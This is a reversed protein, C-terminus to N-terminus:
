TKIVKPKDFDSRKIHVHGNTFWAFKHQNSKAFQQSNYLLRNQQATLQPSIHIKHIFNQSILRKKSRNFNKGAELFSTRKSKAKFKLVVTGKEDQTCEVEEPSIECGIQNSVELAINIPDITSLPVGRIEVNQNTLQQDLEETIDSTKQCSGKLTVVEQELEKVRQCIQKKFEEFQATLITLPDYFTPESRTKELSPDCIISSRRKSKLCSNCHFSLKKAKINEVIEPKLNACSFHFAKQCNICTVGPKQIRTVNNNCGSKGCAISKSM